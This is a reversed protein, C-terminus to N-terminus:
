GIPEGCMIRAYEKQEETLTNFWARALEVEIKRQAENIEWQRDYESQVKFTFVEKLKPIDEEEVEVKWNLNLHNYLDIAEKVTGLQMAIKIAKYVEFKSKNDFEPKLRITDIKLKM